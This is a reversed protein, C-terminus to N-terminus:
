QLNSAGTENERFCHEPDTPAPDTHKQIEQIRRSNLYHSRLSKKDKFVSTFTGISLILTILLVFEFFSKKNVDQFDSVFLAPGSGYILHVYRFFFIRFGYWFTM